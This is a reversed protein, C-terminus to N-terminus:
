LYWSILKIFSLCIPQKHCCTKIKQIKWKCYTLHHDSLRADIFRQQSVREPVKIVIHNIIISSNNTIRASYSSNSTVRAPYNCWPHINSFSQCSLLTKLFMRSDSIIYMRWPSILLSRSISHKFDNKYLTEM